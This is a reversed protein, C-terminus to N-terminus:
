GPTEKESRQKEVLLKRCQKEFFAIENLMIDIDDRQQQLLRRRRELKTSFEQLQQSDGSSIDYLDFLERLEALPIGLRQGRLALKLRARDRVSFIRNTGQRQPILLGEDEYHRITRTTIDFEKALDSITYSNIM